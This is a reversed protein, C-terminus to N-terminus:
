LFSKSCNNCAPIKHQEGKTHKDRIYNYKSNKWIEAISNIKVNGLIVKGEYDLCCLACTGDALITFTRWIRSCPKRINRQLINTKDADDGWNHIKGFSFSDVHKELMEMTKTKSSTSCCAVRIKLNSGMSNRLRSLNTINSVVTDFKLPIRINEYEDKSSGDFSIKIEDLGSNILKIAKDNDLLSGNSFIKVRKIGADKAFKIRDFIDKDLLPEGFNHLHVCKCKNEKCENIIKKFLSNDITSIKRQM